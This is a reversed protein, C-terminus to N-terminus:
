IPLLGLIISGISLITLFILYAEVDRIYYFLHDNTIEPLEKPRKMDNCQHDNPVTYHTPCYSSAPLPLM